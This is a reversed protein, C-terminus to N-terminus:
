VEAEADSEWKWRWCAFGDAVQRQWRREFLHAHRYSWRGDAMSCLFRFRFVLFAWDGVVALVDLCWEGLWLWLGDVNVGM